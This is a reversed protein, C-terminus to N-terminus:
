VGVGIGLKYPQPYVHYAECWLQYQRLEEDTMERPFPSIREDLNRRLMVTGVMVGKENKGMHCYSGKSYWNDWQTQSVGFIVYVPEEQKVSQKKIREKEEETKDQWEKLFQQYKRPIEM